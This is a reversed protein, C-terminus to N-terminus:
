RYDDWSGTPVCGPRDDGLGRRALYVLHRGVECGVDLGAISRGPLFWEAVTMVLPSPQTWRAADHEFVQDWADM